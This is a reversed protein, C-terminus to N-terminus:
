YELLHFPRYVKQGREGKQHCFCRKQKCGKKKLTNQGYKKGKLKKNEPAPPTPPREKLGSAGAPWSISDGEQLLPKILRMINM